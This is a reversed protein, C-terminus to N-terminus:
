YRQLYTVTIDFEPNYIFTDFNTFKDFKSFINVLDQVIKFIIYYANTPRPNTKAKFIKLTIDKYNDKIYDIKDQKWTYLM